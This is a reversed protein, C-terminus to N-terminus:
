LPMTYNIQQALFDLPLEGTTESGIPFNWKTGDQIPDVPSKVSFKHDPFIWTKYYISTARPDCSSPEGPIIKSDPNVKCVVPTGSSVLKVGDKFMWTPYSEIKKEKCIATVSQDPNSCEVYPLYQKSSGFATKQAQCHPCWFAGYFEAGGSKLAKAFEDYKGPGQAKTAIFGIGLVLIIIGAILVIFKKPQPEM